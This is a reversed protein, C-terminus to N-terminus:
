LSVAEDLVGLVADSVVHPVEVPMQHGSSPVNVYRANPAKAVMGKWAEHVRQIQKVNPGTVGGATLVQVPIAPLEPADRALAALSPRIGAGESRATRLSERWLAPDAIRSELRARYALPAGPPCLMNLLKRRGAGFRAAAGML